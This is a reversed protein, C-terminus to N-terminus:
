PRGPRPGPPPVGRLGVGAQTGDGANARHQRQDEKILDVVDPTEGLDPLEQGVGAQDPAAVFRGPLLLAGAAVLDAIRMEFPGEGLGGAQEEALALLGLAPEGAARLLVARGAGQPGRGGAPAAGDVVQEALLLDEVAFAEEGRSRATPATRRSSEAFSGSRRLWRATGPLQRGFQPWCRALTARSPLQRPGSGEA